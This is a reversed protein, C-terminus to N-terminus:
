NKSYTTILICMTHICFKLHIQIRQQLHKCQLAWWETRSLGDVIAGLEVVCKNSDYRQGQLAANDDILQSQTVDDFDTISTLTQAILQMFDLSKLENLLTFHDDCQVVVVFSLLVGLISNRM